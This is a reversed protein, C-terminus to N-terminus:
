YFLYMLTMLLYTFDVTMYYLASYWGHLDFVLYAWSAGVVGLFFVGRPCVVCVINSMLPDPRAALYQFVISRNWECRSELIPRLSEEVDNVIRLDCYIGTPKDSIKKTGHIGVFVTLKLFPFKRSNKRQHPSNQWKLVPIRPPGPAFM